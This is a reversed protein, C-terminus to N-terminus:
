LSSLAGLGSRNIMADTKGNPLNNNAQPVAQGMLPIQGIESTLDTYDAEGPARTKVGVAAALAQSLAGTGLTGGYSAFGDSPGGAAGAAGSSPPNLTNLLNNAMNGYKYIQQATKFADGLSTGVGTGLMDSAGSALGGWGGGAGAWVGGDAAVGTGIGSGLGAGTDATTGFLGAMSGPDTGYLGSGLETGGAQSWSWPSTEGYTFTPAAAESAGAASGAEGAGGAGAAAEGAGMYGGLAAGGAWATIAGVALPMAVDIFNDFATPTNDFQVQDTAVGTGNGNGTGNDHVVNVNTVGNTVWQGNEPQQYQNFVPDWTWLGTQGPLTVPTYVDLWPQNMPQSDTSGAFVSMDRPQWDAPPPSEGFYAAQAAAGAYSNPDYQDIGTSGGNAAAIQAQYDSWESM